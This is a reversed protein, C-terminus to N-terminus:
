GFLQTNERIGYFLWFVWIVATVGAIVLPFWFALVALLAYVGFAYVAYRVNTVAAAKAQENKALGSAMATKGLLIWGVSQFAIVSCYLIVAPAAHDTFLFEGMLATPFPLFVVTLLLFGNAYIFTPSSGNVLKLATHHNVWSILIIVFSLLFALVTPTMHALADWFQANSNVSMAPPLKIELVLLTLAIAFVGDCFAELRSNSNTEAM